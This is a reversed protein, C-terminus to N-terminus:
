LTDLESLELCLSEKARTLIMIHDLKVGLSMLKEYNTETKLEDEITKKKIELQSLEKEIEKLGRKEDFTM